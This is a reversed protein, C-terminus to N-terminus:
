KNTLSLIFEGISPKLYNKLISERLNEFSVSCKNTFSKRLEPNSSITLLSALLEDQHEENSSKM